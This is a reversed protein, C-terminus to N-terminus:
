DVNMDREIESFNPVVFRRCIPCTRSPLLLWRKICVGHFLHECRPLVWLEEGNVFEERCIPCSEPDVATAVASVFPSSPLQSSPVVYVVRPIKSLFTMDVPRKRRRERSPFMSKILFFLIVVMIVFWSIFSLPVLFVLVVM